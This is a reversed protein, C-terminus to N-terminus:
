VTLLWMGLKEVKRKKLRDKELNLANETTGSDPLHMSEIIIKFKEKALYGNTIVQCSHFPCAYVCLFPLYVLLLAM